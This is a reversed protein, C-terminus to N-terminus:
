SQLIRRIERRRAWEGLRETMQKLHAGGIWGALSAVAVPWALVGPVVGTFGSLGILTSITLVVVGTWYAVAAVQQGWKTAAAFIKLETRRQQEANLAATDEARNARAHEEALAADAKARAVDAKARQADAEASMTSKAHAIMEDVTRPDEYEEDNSELLRSETLEYALVAVMEDTSLSKQKVLSDLHDTFSRWREPSPQLLVSCSAILEHLKVNGAAAPKKLWAATSITLHRITPPVGREGEERHWERVENAVSKNTTVFVAETTDLSKFQRGRRLTLIAAVCDVDHLVRGDGPHSPNLRRTLSKEDLTFRSDHEPFGRITLGLAKLQPEMLAVIEAIDSPRCRAGFLYRSIPSHPLDRLGEASRLLSTYPRLIAKMEDITREFVFFQASTARLLDILERSAMQSEPGALGLARLLFVSDFYVKLNKFSRGASAIDKLLLANQLVFGELMRRIYETLDPEKRFCTQIFQATLRQIEPSLNSSRPRFLADSPAELIMAVHCDDLFALLVSLAEEDSDIAFKSDATFERLRAALAHHEREVGKISSSFDIGQLRDNDRHYRGDQRRIYKRKCARSLVTLLTHEPVALQFRNQLASKLDRLSFLDQNFGRAADLVFPVFMDIHDEGSDFNVKLLAVTALGRVQAQATTM